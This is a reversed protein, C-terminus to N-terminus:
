LQTFAAVAPDSGIRAGSELATIAALEDDSLTLEAAALNERIRAPNASKPIVINGTALHWALVVQATSTNHAQAIATVANGNLDGGQGLPSYAEVAIGLSRCKAALEAQQYSPHLEIQNVAPVVEASELLTDLHESLFNSVGIARVQNNAYIREMEKWAQTFLGQSPVPWHILYLDIYDLGLTNRSNLFAEQAQGQEGNRLKTTVFIEERPIGTAAIAAGVGAENKYAAATDIHRYGAELADEVIRQTEAPPVKFVGLGLQPITVGNNLTLESM